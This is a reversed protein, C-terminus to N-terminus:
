GVIGSREIGQTVFKQVFLYIIILPFIVMLSYTGGLAVTLPQGAGLYLTHGEVFMGAFGKALM